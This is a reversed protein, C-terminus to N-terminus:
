NQTISSDISGNSNFFFAYIEQQNGDVRSFILIRGDPSWNSQKDDNTYGFTINFPNTPYVLGSTDLVGSTNVQALWIDYNTTLNSTFSIFKGSRTLDSNTNGPIIIPNDDGCSNFIVILTIIPVISKIIKFYNKM